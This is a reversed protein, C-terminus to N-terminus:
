GLLQHITLFDVGIIQHQAAMKKLINVAKNTPASLAIRKGQQLLEKIFQIIITSKGTGAYGCLLFITNPSILFEKVQQIAKSQQPTFTFQHSESTQTLNLLNQSM